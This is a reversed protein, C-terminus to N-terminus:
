RTAATDGTAVLVSRLHALIPHRPLEDLEAHTLQRRGAAIDALVAAVPEKALWRLATGPPDTATLADKLPRM